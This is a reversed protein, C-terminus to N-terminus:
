RHHTASTELDLHGLTSLPARRVAEFESRLDAGRTLLLYAVSSVVLGVLFALDAKDMAAAAPGVYLATSFFPIMAAFGLAYSIIGASAWRGYIGGDPRLIDTISYVGKRVIYYDTLNVATWPILFYGLISLFAAFSGLIDSPLALAAVIVLTGGIILTTSRLRASSKIPRFAELASLLSVSGSYFALACTILCSAAAIAMTISGLRFGFDNGMDRIASIVDSEPFATAL